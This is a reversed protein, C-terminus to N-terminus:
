AKPKLIVTTTNLFEIKKLIKVLEEYRLSENEEYINYLVKDNDVVDSMIKNNLRFINDSMFINSSLFVKKKRNFDIDSISSGITEKIKKILKGSKKTEAMFTVLLYGDIRTTMFDINENTIKEKKIQESFESVSGFLTDLYISLYKHIMREELSIHHIDIKYSFYVKPITVNMEIVERKKAVRKPEKYQKRKIEKAKDFKKSDQNKHIIDMTKEPDINGTIVLFMNSPHYFTHYCSYLEEKTISNVSEISGIVPIRIPHKIFANAMTANYGRRSPSDQCMKIEQIIIGKEKEVNEDTFYPSQVYDLLFNLNDEFNNPGDFLYTTKYASTMANAGAGNQDFKSFPDIGDEQEFMKHELFHAIGHPFKTMTKKHIPVFEHDTGGYKTTFTAYINNVNKKPVLYVQLGNKLTEEYIDVDLRTLPVKKM